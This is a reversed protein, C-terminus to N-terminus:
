PSGAARSALVQGFWALLDRTVEERNTENFLEHRADPYFHHTVQTLGARRYADLLSPLRTANASVPDRLGAILHIPLAKPIRALRAPRHLDALADLLDIWLQVRPVFGCLPDNVYLDVEAPDRSLWDFATRPPRFPKNFAGLTLAQLLPSQGRPGLRLRELRAMWRGPRALFPPLGDPGSLVVGALTDGHEIIFEQALFSGMSHGLMFVPLGPHDAAIRRHLLWLDDLCKRWGDKEAFIGLDAPMAATRGHGRHDSAYVVYGAENLVAALRAYRGAHEGLGHVIQVAARPAITPSWRYVHLAVGDAATLPILDAPSSSTM